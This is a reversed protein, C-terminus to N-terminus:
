VFRGDKQFLRGDVYVAGGRRLDKIMDWHIASRNLGGTEPYSKGVALHVTGGIKEDFLISKTFRQIRRNTGIGLEGLRRAGPDSDLMSLLFAQNKEATAEVVRGKRFVLRVGQVERGQHCVPFDYTIYGEVSDEVPGTFIEGSPMNRRGNSNIFTRGKVSMSIDTGPGVIRVLQAGKLRAILKAQERSVARWCGVPDKEDAFTAGYVFDEYEGLSMEADQALAECPFMTLVWPKTRLIEQVPRMTRGLRAQRQPDTGTLARTNSPARIDISKDICRAYARAFPPIRDFHIDRGRKLMIEAAEDSQLRLAPFAGARLLEEYVALVLPMATVSFTVGVTEGPDAEVCYRVLIRALSSVRPDTM